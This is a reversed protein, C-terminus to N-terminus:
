QSLDRDIEEQLAALDAASDKSIIALISEDEERRAHLAINRDKEMGVTEALTIRIDKIRKKLYAILEKTEPREFYKAKRNIKALKEEWERIIDQDYPDDFRKKAQKIKDQIILTM